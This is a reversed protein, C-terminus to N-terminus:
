GSYDAYLQEQYNTAPLRPGTYPQSPVVRVEVVNLATWM